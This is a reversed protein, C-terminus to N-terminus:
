QKYSIVSALQLTKRSYVNGPYKRGFLLRRLADDFDSATVKRPNGRLQPNNMLTENLCHIVKLLANPYKRLRDLAEKRLVTLDTIISFRVHHVIRLDQEDVTKINLNSDCILGTGALYNGRYFSINFISDFLKTIYPYESKAIFELIDSDLIVDGLENLNFMDKRSNLDTECLVTFITGTYVPPNVLNFEDNDPIRIFDLPKARIASDSQREFFNMAKLSKTFTKEIKSPDNPVGGFNLYEPPLLQNHVMLPYRAECATPRNYTFKYSFSITWTGTADDREPKEPVSNFDYLGQVRTQTESVALNINNNTLDSVLTLRNTSNNKLWDEFADGYGDINERLTHITKLLELFPMPINYHYTLDHLNIDRMASLQVRMDDRWRLAETKSKTRYKFHITIINDVYIPTLRTSIRADHLIPINENYNVATTSLTEVDYDDEVEIFVIQNTAMVADRNKDDISSGGQQMRNIDGPYFIKTDKSIKTVEQVQRIIDFVIPRTVSQSVDPLTMKVVPM